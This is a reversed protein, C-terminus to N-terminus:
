SGDIKEDFSGVSLIKGDEIGVVRGDVGGDNAGEDKYEFETIANNDTRPIQLPHGLLIM